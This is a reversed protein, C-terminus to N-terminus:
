GGAQDISSVKITNNSKDIEGKVTVAHGLHKEAEDKSVDLIFHGEQTALAWKAGKGVCAKACGAHGANAAKEYNKACNEDAIWGTWSGQDAATAFAAFGVALALVIISGFLRKM